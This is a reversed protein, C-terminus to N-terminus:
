LELVCEVLNNPHSLILQSQLITRLILLFLSAMLAGVRSGVNNRPSPSELAEPNGVFDYTGMVNAGIAM